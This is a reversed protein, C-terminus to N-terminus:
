SSYVDTAVTKKTNITSYSKHDSSVNFLISICVPLIIAAGVVQIILKVILGEVSFYLPDLAYRCGFRKPLFLFVMRLMNEIHDTMNLNNKHDLPHIM